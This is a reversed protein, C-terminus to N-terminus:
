ATTQLVAPRGPRPRGNRVNRGTTSKTTDNTLRALTRVPENAFRMPSWILHRDTQKRQLIQAYVGLTM